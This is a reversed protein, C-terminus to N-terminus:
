HDNNKKQQNIWKELPAKNREYWQSTIRYETGLIEIPKIYYRNHMGKAEVDTVSCLLPFNLKFKKNCYDPECLEEVLSKDHLNLILPKLEDRVLKGIKMEEEHAKIEKPSIKEGFSDISESYLQVSRLYLENTNTYANEALEHIPQSIEQRFKDNFAIYVDIKEFGMNGVLESLNLNAIIEIIKDTRKKQVKPSLFFVEVSKVSWYAYAAFLSALIKAVVKFECSRAKTVDSYNLGQKHYAIDGIHLTVKENNDWKAGVADCEVVKLLSDINDVKKFITVDYKNSFYDTIKSFSDMLNKKKEESYQWAPAKWNTQVIQCKREHRLWSALLSEAIDIQM